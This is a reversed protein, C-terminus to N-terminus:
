DEKEVTIASDPCIIACMACATCKEPATIMSPHYGKANLKGMNLQLIKRPCAVTCLACGKCVTEDITLHNVM